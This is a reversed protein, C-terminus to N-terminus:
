RRVTFRRNVGPSPAGSRRASCSPLEGTEGIETSSGSATEGSQAPATTEGSTGGGCGAFLYVILALALILAFTKKM